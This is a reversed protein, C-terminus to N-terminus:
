GQAGVGELAAVAATAPGGFGAGECAAELGERVKVSASSDPAMPQDM